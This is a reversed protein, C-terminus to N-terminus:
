QRGGGRGGWESVPPQFHLHLWLLQYFLFALAAQDTELKDVAVCVGGGGEGGRRGREEEEGEGRRGEGGGRATRVSSM